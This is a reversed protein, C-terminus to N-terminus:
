GRFITDAELKASAVRSVACLRAFKQLAHEINQSHLIPSDRLTKGKSDTVKCGTRYSVLGISCVNTSRCDSM